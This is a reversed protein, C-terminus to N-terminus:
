RKPWEWAPEDLFGLGEIRTEGKEKTLRISRVGTGEAPGAGLADVLAPAHSVVIVQTGESSQVILEALPVLLSPDLHAEPENLVLLEPPRASLLAAVLLLYRLTGESLEAVGLTRLMGPQRLGLEMWPPRPAAIELRSGPFARDITAHLADADGIEV